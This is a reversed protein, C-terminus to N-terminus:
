DSKVLTARLQEMAELRSSLRNNRKLELNGISEQANRLALALINALAGKKPSNYSIKKLSLADGLMTIEEAVLPVNGIYNLCPELANKGEEVISVTLIQILQQSPTLNLDVEAAFIRLSKIEGQRISLLALAGIDAYSTFALAEVNLSTSLNANQNAVIKQLAFLHDRKITAREYEQLEALNQMELELSNLYSQDSTKLFEVLLKSQMKHIVENEGGLCPAKCKGIEGLLCPKGQKVARKFITEKCSRVEFSQSLTDLMDRGKVGPFPGFSIGQKPRRGRWLALKPIPLDEYIVVGGFADTDLLKINYRPQFRRIWMAELILAEKENITLVWDIKHANLLVEQMRGHLTGSPTFYNNLRNALNKAKGVYLLNNKEDYFRYVGAAQPISSPSPTLLNRAEELSNHM